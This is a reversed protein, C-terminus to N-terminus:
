RDSYLTVKIVWKGTEYDQYMEMWVPEGKFDFPCNSDQAIDFPVRFGVCNGFTRASGKGSVSM